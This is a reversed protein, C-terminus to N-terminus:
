LDALLVVMSYVTVDVMRAVWKVVTSAAWCVAWYAVRSDASLVVMSCVTVDVMKAALKVVM